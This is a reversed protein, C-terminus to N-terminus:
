YNTVDLLLYHSNEINSEESMYDMDDGSMSDRYAGRQIAVQGVKINGTAGEFRTGNLYATYVVTFGNRSSTGVETYGAALDAMVVAYTKSSDPVIYNYNALNGDTPNPNTFQFLASIKAVKNSIDFMLTGSANYLQLGFASNESSSFEFVYMTATLAVNSVFTLEYGTNGSLPLVGSLAVYGASLNRIGVMVPNLTSVNIQYLYYNSANKVTSFEQKMKLKFPLHADTLQVISNENKVEFLTAM